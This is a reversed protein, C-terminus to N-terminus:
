GAYQERREGNQVFLEWAYHMLEDNCFRDDENEVDWMLFEDVDFRRGGNQMEIAIKDFENHQLNQRVLVVFESMDHNEFWFSPDDSAVCWTTSIGKYFRGIARMAEYTPVYWIEYGDKSGLMKAGNDIMERRCENDRRQRKNSPDYSQVFDKLAQFPKKIWWDIDNQPASLRNRIAWFMDVVPIADEEDRYKQLYTAKNENLVTSENLKKYNGARLQKEWYVIAETIQRKAYTKKM